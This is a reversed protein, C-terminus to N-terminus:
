LQSGMFDFSCFNIFVSSYMTNLLFSCLFFCYHKDSPKTSIYLVVGISMDKTINHTFVVPALTVVRTPYWLNWLSCENYLNMHVIM